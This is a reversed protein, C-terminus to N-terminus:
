GSQSTQVGTTVEQPMGTVQAIPDAHWHHSLGAHKPPMVPQGSVAMCVSCDAVLVVVQVTHTHVATHSDFATVPPQEFGVNGWCASWTCSRSQIKVNRGIVSENGVSVCLCVRSTWSLAVQILVIDLSSVDPTRPVVYGCGAIVARINSPLWCCHCSGQYHGLSSAVACIRIERGCALMAAMDANCATLPPAAPCM